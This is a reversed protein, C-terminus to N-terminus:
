EEVVPWLRPFYSFSVGMARSKRLDPVSGSESLSKTEM